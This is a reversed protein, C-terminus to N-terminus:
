SKILKPLLFLAALGIGGGILLGKNEEVFSKKEEKEEPAAGKKDLYKNATDLGKNVFASFKGAGSKAKELKAQSKTRKADASAKKKDTKAAKKAKRQKGSIAPYNDPFIVGMEDGEDTNSDASGPADNEPENVEEIGQSEENEIENEIEAPADQPELQERDVFLPEGSEEFVARQREQRLAKKIRVANLPSHKKVMQKAMRAAAIPNKPAAKVVRKLAGKYKAAKSVARSRQPKAAKRSGGGGGGSKRRSAGIGNLYELSM